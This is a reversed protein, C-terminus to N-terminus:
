GRSKVFRRTDDNPDVWHMIFPAAGLTKHDTLLRRERLYALAPNLRRAAWGLKVAIEGAAKPFAAENVLHAALLLADDAPKWPQWYGDYEAFLSDKPFVRDSGKESSGQLHDRLEFIADTVDEKSLSTAVVLESQLVQPDGFTGHMSAMVFHKAIANAAPSLGTKVPTAPVPPPGLPPKKSLEHIASVVQEIGADFDDISPSLMPQLLIPMQDVKIGSRVPIFRVKSALKQVLGAAWEQAVWNSKLSDETLLVVFHTAKELGKSIETPLSDGAMTSWPAWWVDIGKAQLAHALKKALSQDHFAFSLFAHPTSTTVPTMNVLALDDPSLRQRVIALLEPSGEVTWRLDHINAGVSYQGREPHSASQFNVRTNM